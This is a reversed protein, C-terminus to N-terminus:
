VTILKFIKTSTITTAGGNTITILVQYTKGAALTMPDWTYTFFGRAGIAGFNAPTITKVIANTEDIIQATCQVWPATMIIGYQEVGTEIRLGNTEINFTCIIQRDLLALLALSDDMKDALSDATAPSDCAAKDVKAVQLKTYALDGAGTAQTLVDISYLREAASNPVVHAAATIVEDLVTYAITNAAVDPVGLLANLNANNARTSIAGGLVRALFGSTGATGHATVINEDWVSDTTYIPLTDTAGTDPVGLLAELTNNFTRGSIDWGLAHLVLGTSSAAVHTSADENWVADAIAPLLVLPGLSNMIAGMTLATNHSAALEQWVQGAVTDTVATDPVGLLANLTNNFTRLSIASGLVRLLLGATAATGHAAVIDEDWVGDVIAAIDAPAISVDGAISSKLIIYGNGAAVVQTFAPSVTITDSAPTFSVIRRGQGANPGTTMFIVSEHWYDVDAETRDTDVVTLATGGTATGAVQVVGATAGVEDPVGLLANLNANNTRADLATGLADLNGGTTGAGVHGAMLEDWVLGAASSASLPFIVYTSTADPNTVWAASVTALRNTVGGTADYASIIRSQGVGLGGTIVVMNGNYTNDIVAEATLALSISTATGATAMGSNVIFSEDSKPLIVYRSTADLATTWPDVHCVRAATYHHIVRAQGEGTGDVIKVVCGNYYNLTAPAAAALTITNAAVAASLEPGRCLLDRGDDGEHDGYQFEFTVPRIQSAHSVEAIYKDGVTFPSLVSQRYDWVGTNFTVPGTETVAQHVMAVVPDTNEVAAAVWTDTDFKFSEFVGTAPVVHWLRLYATGAVIKADGVDYLIARFLISGDSSRIINVGRSESV